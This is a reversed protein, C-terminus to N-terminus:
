FSEILGKPLGWFHATDKLLKKDETKDSKLENTKLNIGYFKLDKDLIDYTAKDKTEGHSMESFGILAVILLSVIFFSINKTMQTVEKKDM